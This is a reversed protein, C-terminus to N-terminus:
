RSPPSPQPLSQLATFFNTLEWSSPLIKPPIAMAESQTKFSTLLMWLFPFIMTVSGLVLATYTVITSVNKSAKMSKM